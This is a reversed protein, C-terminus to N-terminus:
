RVRCMNLPALGYDDFPHGDFALLKWATQRAIFVSYPM